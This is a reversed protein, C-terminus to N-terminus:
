GLTLHCLFYNGRRVRLDSHARATEGVWDGLLLTKSQCLLVPVNRSSGHCSTASENQSSKRGPTEEEKMMKVQVVSVGEGLSERRRSMGECKKGKWEMWIM